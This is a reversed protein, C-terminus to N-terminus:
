WRSREGHKAGSQLNMPIPIGRILAASYQSTKWSFYAWRRRQHPLSPLLTANGVHTSFFEFLSLFCVIRRFRRLGELFLDWGRPVTEDSPGTDRELYTIKCEATPTNSLMEWAKPQGEAGLWKRYCCPWWGRWSQEKISSPARHVSHQITLLAGSPKRWCHTPRNLWLNGPFDNQFLSDSGIQTQGYLLLTQAPDRAPGM